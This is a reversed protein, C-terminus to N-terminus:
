LGLDYDLATQLIEADVRALARVEELVHGREVRAVHVHVRVGTGALVAVEVRKVRHGCFVLAVEHADDTEGFVKGDADVALLVPRQHLSLHKKHEASAIYARSTNM